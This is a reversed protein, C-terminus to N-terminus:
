LNVTIRLNETSRAGHMVSDSQRGTRPSRFVASKRIWKRTKRPPREVCMKRKLGSPPGLKGVMQWTDSPIVPRWIVRVAHGAFLIKAKPFRPSVPTSIGARGGAVQHPRSYYTGGDQFRSYFRESGLMTAAPAIWNWSGRRAAERRCLERPGEGASAKGTELGGRNEQAKPYRRDLDRELCLPPRYRQLGRFTHPTMEALPLQASRIQADCAQWPTEAKFPEERRGSLCNTSDPWRCFPRLAPSPNNGM